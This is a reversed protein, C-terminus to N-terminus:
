KDQKKGLDFNTGLGVFWYWRESSDPIMLNYGIGGALSLGASTDMFGNSKFLLGLGLGVELDKEGKLQDLASVHVIGRLRQSKLRSVAYYVSIGSTASFGKDSDDSAKLRETLTLVVGADSGALPFRRNFIRVYAFTAKGSADEMRFEIIASKDVFNNDCVLDDSGLTWSGEGLAILGCDKVVLGGGGSPSAKMQGFLRASLRTEKEWEVSLARYARAEFLVLTPDAASPSVPAEIYTGVNALQRETGAIVQERDGIKLTLQAGALAPLSAAILLATAFRRRASGREARSHAEHAELLREGENVRKSM